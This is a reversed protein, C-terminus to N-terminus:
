RRSAPSLPMSYRCVVIRVTASGIHASSAVGAGTATTGSRTPRLVTSVTANWTGNLEPTSLTAPVVRANRRAPRASTPHQAANAAAAWTPRVADTASSTRPVTRSVAPSSHCDAAAQSADYRYAGSYRLASYRATNPSPGAACSITPGGSTM